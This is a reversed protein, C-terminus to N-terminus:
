IQKPQIIKFHIAFGNWTDASDENKNKSKKVQSGTFSSWTM